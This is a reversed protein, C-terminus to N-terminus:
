SYKAHRKGIKSDREHSRGCTDCWYLDNENKTESPETSKDEMAIGARCWDQAMDDPIDRVDGAQFTGHVTAVSKLIRIRM